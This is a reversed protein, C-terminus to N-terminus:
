VLFVTFLTFREINKKSSGDEEKETSMTSAARRDTPTNSTHAVPLYEWVDDEQSVYWTSPSHHHNIRIEYWTSSTYKTNWEHVPVKWRTFMNSTYVDYQMYMEPLHKPVDAGKSGIYTHIYMYIIHQIRRYIASIKSLKQCIDRPKRERARRQGQGRAYTHVRIHIYVYM